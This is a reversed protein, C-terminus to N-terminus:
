KSKNKIHKIEAEIYNIVRDRMKEYKEDPFLKALMGSLKVIKMDNTKIKDYYNLAEIIMNSKSEDCLCIIEPYEINAVGSEGSTNINTVFQYKMNSQKILTTGPKESILKMLQKISKRDIIICNSDEKGIQWLIVVDEESQDIEIEQYKGNPM